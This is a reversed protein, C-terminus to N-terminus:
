PKSEAEGEIGTGDHFTSFLRDRPMENTGDNCNIHRHHLQHFFDGTDLHKKDGAMVGDDGSHSFAPNLAQVYLHFLVHVPSSPVVTHLLVTFFYMLQEMPHMSIGFTGSAEYSAGHPLRTGSDVDLGAPVALVDIIRWGQDLIEPGIGDGGLALIKAM